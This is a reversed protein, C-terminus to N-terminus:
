FTANQSAELSAEDGLTPKCVIDIDVHVYVPDSASATTEVYHLAM